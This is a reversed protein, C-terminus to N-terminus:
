GLLYEMSSWLLIERLQYNRGVLSGVLSIDRFVLDHANVQLRNQSFNVIVMGGHNWLQKMGSDFAAQNEPPMIAVDVGRETAHIAPDTEGINGLITVPNHGRADSIHVRDGVVGLNSKVSQIISLSKTNTDVALVEM